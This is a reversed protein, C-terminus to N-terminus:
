LMVGCYLAQAVKIFSITLGGTLCGAESHSKMTRTVSSRTFTRNERLVRSCFVVSICSILEQSFYTYIIQSYQSQFDMNSRVRVEFNCM